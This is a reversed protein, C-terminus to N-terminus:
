QSGFMFCGQKPSHEGTMNQKGNEVALIWFWILKYTQVATKFSYQKSIGGFSAMEEQKKERRKIKWAM